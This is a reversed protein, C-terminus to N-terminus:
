VDATEAIGGYRWEAYTLARATHWWAGPTVPAGTDPDTMNEGTCPVGIGANCTVCPVQAAHHSMILYRGPQPNHTNRVLDNYVQARVKHMQDRYVFRGATEDHCKEGCRASCEPCVNSYLDAIPQTNM